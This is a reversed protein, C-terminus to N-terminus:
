SNRQILKLKILERNIISAIKKNGFKSFHGGYENDDSYLSDLDPEEIFNTTLDIVHIGEINKVSNMLEEYFHYNRKIFLIDDKQPLFIFVPKFQENKGYSVFEEIIKKLLECSDNQKFLKLRWQLNLKMITRMPNWEISSTDKGIKKLIHINTVWFLISFNRRLNKLTTFLYPFKIIEKKFKKSYFFDHQKIDDLFIEYNHFKDEEDIINKILHLKNNKLKFRPKFAFTNGYEYYHKWVSMIRSITDPVVALIVINTQNKPYERKIRLLSQDIGHNGVGFNVVNTNLLESMYHEWTENDNVQRCFTFSDGYCSITPKLNTYKPNFRSGINDINWTTTGFKGKENHSTNPKRVWGLEPDFGHPIFKKLGEESLKPIEDNSTILWQFHKRVYTVWLYFIIETSGLIIGVLIVINWFDIAM